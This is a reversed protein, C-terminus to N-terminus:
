GKGTATIACWASNTGRATCTAPPEVGDSKPAADLLAAVHELVQRQSYQGADFRLEIAPTAGETMAPVAIVVSDIEPALFARGVFHRCPSGDADVFLGASEIRIVGDDPLVIKVDVPGSVDTGTLVEYM